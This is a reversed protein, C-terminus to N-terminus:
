KEIASIAKFFKSPDVKYAKVKGKVIEIDQFSWYREGGKDAQFFMKYLGPELKQTDESDSVQIYFVNGSIAPITKRIYQEYVVLLEQAFPDISKELRANAKNLQDSYKEVEATYANLEPDMEEVQIKMSEIRREAAKIKPGPLQKYELATKQIEEQRLDWEKIYARWEELLSEAWSREEDVKAADVKGYLALRYSNVALEPDKVPLDDSYDLNLSAARTQITQFVANLKKEYEEDLQSGEEKWLRALEDSNRQLIKPIEERDKQMADLLLKKRQNVAALDGQAADLSDSLTAIEQELPARLRLYDRRILNVKGTFDYILHAEPLLQYEGSEVKVQVSTQPQIMFIITGIVGLFILPVLIKIVLPIDAFISRQELENTRKVVVKQKRKRPQRNDLRIKDVSQKRTTGIEPTTKEELKIKNIVQAKPQQTKAKVAVDSPKKKAEIKLGAKFPTKLKVQNEQATNKEESQQISLKANQLTRRQGSSIRDKDLKMKPIKLKGSPTVELPSVNKPKPLSDLGQNDTKVIESKKLESSKEDKAGSLILNLPDSQSSKSKDKDMQQKQKKEESM